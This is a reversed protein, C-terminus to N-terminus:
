AQVEKAAGYMLRTDEYTGPKVDPNAKRAHYVRCAFCGEDPGGGGCTCFENAEDTAQREYKWEGM